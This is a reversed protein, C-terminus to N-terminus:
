SSGCVKESISEKVALSDENLGQLLGGTTAQTDFFAIDQLPLLLVNLTQHLLPLVHMCVAAVHM